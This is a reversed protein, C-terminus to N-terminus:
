EIMESADGFLTLRSHLAWPSERGKLKIILDIWTSQPIPLDAQKESAPVSDLSTPVTPLLTTCGGTPRNM